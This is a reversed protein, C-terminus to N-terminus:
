IHILSLHLVYDAQPKGAAVKSFGDNKWKYNPNTGQPKFEPQTAQEALGIPNPNTMPEAYQAEQATHQVAQQANRVSSDVADTVNKDVQPTQIGVGALGERVQDIIGASDFDPQPLEQAGAAPSGLFFAGAFASGVLVKKLHPIRLM